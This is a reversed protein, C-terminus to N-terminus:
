AIGSRSRTSHLFSCIGPCTSMHGHTNWSSQCGYQLKRCLTDKGLRDVKVLSESLVVLRSQLALPFQRPMLTYYSAVWSRLILTVRLTHMHKCSPLGTSCDLALSCLALFCSAPMATNVSCNGDYPQANPTRAYWYPVLLVM